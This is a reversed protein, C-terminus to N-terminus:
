KRMMLSSIIIGLLVTLITLYFHDMHFFKLGCLSLTVIDIM